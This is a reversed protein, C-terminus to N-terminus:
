AEEWISAANYANTYFVPTIGTRAELTQAFALRHRQAPMPSAGYQEFDVAPRCDYLGERLLRSIPRRSGPRPPIEATM